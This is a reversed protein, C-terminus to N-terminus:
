AARGAHAPAREEPTPLPTVPAKRETPATLATGTAATLVLLAAAATVPTLPQDLLLAGFLAAMVPELALLVSFTRKPVRSLAAIEAAYPLASGLVAILVGSALVEPRLLTTGAGAVGFPLTLVAAVAMAVGVGGAGTGSAALRSGAVIYAAWFAGAGLAFLVGVVDLPGGAGDHGLGPLAVGAVALVVWPLDRARRALVAALLLPGAFQITVATGLPIRALAEYFLGNMGAMAAGLLLASRLRHGDWSRVPPRVLALLLLAALSLRLVTTGAPGVTPFLSASVVAGLQLSTVSVLVLATGVAIRAPAPATPNM